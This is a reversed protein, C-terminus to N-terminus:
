DNENEKSLSLDDNFHYLIGDNKKDHISEGWMRLKMLVKTDMDTEIFNDFSGSYNVMHCQAGISIGYDAFLAKMRKRHYADGLYHNNQDSGYILESSIKEGKESFHYVTYNFDDSGGGTQLITMPTYLKSGNYQYLKMDAYYFDEMLGSCKQTLLLYYGQETCILTLIEEYSSMDTCRGTSVEATKTVTGNEVEFVSFTITEEDLVTLLLEERGDADLDCIEASSVGITETWRTQRKSDYDFFKTKATLDAMENVSLIEQGFYTQFRLAEPTLGTQQVPTQEKALTNNVPFLVASLFAFVAGYLFVTAHNTKKM